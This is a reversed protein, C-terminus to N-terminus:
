CKPGVESVKNNICKRDRYKNRSKDKGSEAAYIIGPLVFLEIHFLM